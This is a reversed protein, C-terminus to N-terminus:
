NQGNSLGNSMKNSMKHGNSLGNSVSIELRQHSQNSHETSHFLFIFHIVFINKSGKGEHGDSYPGIVEVIESYIKEQIDPRTALIM